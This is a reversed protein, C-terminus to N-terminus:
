IFQYVDDTPTITWEALLQGNGVFLRSAHEYKQIRYNNHPHFEREAHIWSYVERLSRLEKDGTSSVCTQIGLFKHNEPDHHQCSVSYIPTLAM